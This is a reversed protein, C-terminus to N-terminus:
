NAGCNESIVTLFQSFNLFRRFLKHAGSLSKWFTWQLVKSCPVYIHVNCRHLKGGSQLMEGDAITLSQM